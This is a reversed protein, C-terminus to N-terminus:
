RGERVPQAGHDIGFAARLGLSALVELVDPPADHRSAVAGAQARSWVALAGFGGAEASTAAAELAAVSVRCLVSPAVGLAEPWSCGLLARDEEHDLADDLSQLGVLLLRGARLFDRRRGPTVGARHLLGIGGLLLWDTKDRVLHAYHDWPMADPCLPAPQAALARRWRGMADAVWRRALLRDGLGEGLRDIWARRLCRDLARAQPVEAAQGDAVRDRLLGLYGACWHAERFVQLRTAEESMGAGDAAFRPLDQMPALCTFDTWRGPPADSLGLRHPLTSAVPRLAPPLGTVLTTWHQEIAEVPTDVLGAHHAEHQARALSRRM